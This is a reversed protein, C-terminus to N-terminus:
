DDRRPTSMTLPLGPESGADATVSQAKAGILVVYSLFAVSFLTMSRMRQM